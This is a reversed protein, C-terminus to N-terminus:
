QTMTLIPLSELSLPLWRVGILQRIADSEAHDLMQIDEAKDDDFLGPVSVLRAVLVRSSRPCEIAYYERMRRQPDWDRFEAAGTWARLGVLRALARDRGADSADAFAAAAKFLKHDSLDQGCAICSGFQARAISRARAELDPAPRRTLLRMIRDLLNAMHSSSGTMCALPSTLVPLLGLLGGGIASREGLVSAGSNFVLDVLATLANRSLSVPRGFVLAGGYVLGVVAGSVRDRTSENIARGLGGARSLCSWNSVSLPPWYSGTMLDMSRGSSQRCVEPNSATGGTGISAWPM